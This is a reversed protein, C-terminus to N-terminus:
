QAGDLFFLHAFDPAGDLFRDIDANNRRGMALEFVTHIGPSETLVQVIPEIDDFQM